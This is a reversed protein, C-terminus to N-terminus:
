SSAGTAVREGDKAPAPERPAEETLWEERFWQSQWPIAIRNDQGRFNVLYLPIGLPGRPNVAEVSGVAGDFRSEPSTFYLVSVGVVGRKNPAKPLAVRVVDGVAFRAM